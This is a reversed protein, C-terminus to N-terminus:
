SQRLYSLGEDLKDLYRLIFQPIVMDFREVATLPTGAAFPPAASGLITIRISHAATASANAAGLM